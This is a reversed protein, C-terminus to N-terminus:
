RGRRGAGPKPRRWDMGGGALGAELGELLGAFSEASRWGTRDNAKDNLCAKWRGEGVFLLLTAPERPGGDDWVALTLYEWLAPYLAAFESDSAPPGSGGSGGSPQPRDLYKSVSERRRALISTSM